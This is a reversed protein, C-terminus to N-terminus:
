WEHVLNWVYDSMSEREEQVNVGKKAIKDLIMWLESERNEYGKFPSSSYLQLQLEAYYERAVKRRQMEAMMDNVEKERIFTWRYECPTQLFEKLELPLTANNFDILNSHKLIVRKCREKLTKAPLLVKKEAFIQM